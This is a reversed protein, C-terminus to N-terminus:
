VKAHTARNLLDLTTSHTIGLTELGNTFEKAIM